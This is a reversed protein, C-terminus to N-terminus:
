PEIKAEAVNESNESLLPEELDISSSIIKDDQLNSQKEQKIEEIEKAKGWLVIYLGAIVGIAGVLSGVYLEEHMFTVTILATIVTALPNFMACYLPGRESICWTQIFFSVLQWNDSESATLYTSPVFEMHLLKQGKLLAMTLAGSVCCVTGLIKAINRLSRLGIKEFGVIAAMIFTLAPILNSMATAATSSAYYLGKFYANQNATVGILSTAFMLFFSRLGMSIKLSQRRKSSFAMPVLTLTAIGQRYVVFVTPSLGDLLAARTFIALAAYHIQLGIMGIVPLHDSLGGM